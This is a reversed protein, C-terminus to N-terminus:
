TKNHTEDHTQLLSSLSIIVDNVELCRSFSCFCKCTFSLLTECRKEMVSKSHSCGMIVTVLLTEMAVSGCFCLLRFLSNKWHTRHTQSASATWVHVFLGDGASAHISSELWLNGNFGYVCPNFRMMMQSGYRVSIKLVSSLKLFVNTHSGLRICITVTFISVNWFANIACLRNFICTQISCYHTEPPRHHSEHTM